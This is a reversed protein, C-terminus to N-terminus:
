PQAGTPTITSNISSTKLLTAANGERQWGPVNTNVTSADEGTVQHFFETEFLKLNRRQDPNLASENVAIILSTSVTDLKDFSAILGPAEKSTLKIPQYIAALQQPLVMPLIHFNGGALREINLPTGLILAADAKGSVLAEVAKEQSQPVRLFPVEMAGLM